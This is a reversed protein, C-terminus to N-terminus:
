MHRLSLRERVEHRTTNGAPKSEYLTLSDVRVRALNSLRVSPLPASAHKLRCVTVHPVAEDDFAFGLATLAERVTKACAAFAPQPASSGAWVVRPRRETPFAGVADLELDFASCRAAADRVV